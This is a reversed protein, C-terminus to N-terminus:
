QNDIIDGGGPPIPNADTSTPIRMFVAGTSDKQFDTEKGTPSNSLFISYKVQNNAADFFDPTFILYNCSPNQGILAKIDHIQSNSLILDGLYTGVGYPITTSAGPIFDLDPTSNFGFKPPAQQIQKFQWGSLNLGTQTIIYKLFLSNNRKGAGPMSTLNKFQNVSCSLESFNGSILVTSTGTQDETQEDKPASPNCNCAFLFMGLFIVLITKRFFFQKM